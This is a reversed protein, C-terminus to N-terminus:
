LWVIIAKDAFQVKAPFQALFPIAMQETTPMSIYELTTNHPM